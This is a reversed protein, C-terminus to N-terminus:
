LFFVLLFILALNSRLYLTCTPPSLKIIIDALRRVFGCQMNARMRIKIKKDDTKHNWEIWKVHSRLSIYIQAGKLLSTQLWTKLKKKPFKFFCNISTLYILTQLMEFIVVYVLSWSRMFLTIVVKLLSSLRFKLLANRINRFTKVREGM